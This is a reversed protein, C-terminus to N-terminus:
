VETSLNIIAVLGPYVTQLECKNLATSEMKHVLCSIVLVTYGSQEVVRFAQAAHLQSKEGSAAPRAPCLSQARIDTLGCRIHVGRSRPPLLLRPSAAHSGLAGHALGEPRPAAWRSSGTRVAAVQSRGCLLSWLGAPLLYETQLRVSHFRLLLKVGVADLARFPGLEDPLLEPPTPSVRSRGPGLPPSVQVRPSAPCAPAAPPGPNPPSKVTVSESSLLSVALM